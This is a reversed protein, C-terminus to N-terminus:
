QWLYVWELDLFGVFLVLTVAVLLWFLLERWFNDV